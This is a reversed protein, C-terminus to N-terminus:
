SKKKDSTIHINNPIQNSNRSEIIVDIRGKNTKSKAAQNLIAKITNNTQNNSPNSSSNNANVIGFCGESGAVVSSKNKIYNGGVHIMIGKAQNPQDRFHWRYSADVPSAKVIETGNQKLKLAENGTGNPFDKRSVAQFKNDNASAPEFAINTLKIDNFSKVDEIKDVIMADRTVGFEMKFNKDETDTVVAKYVDVTTLLEKGGILGLGLVRQDTTGIKEKTITIIPYDTSIEPEDGLPDSKLYPNNAMSTYPSTSEQDNELKPDIELWRGIQPDLSRFFADYTNLDFDTNLEIFNYKKKNELAGFSKSSIGYIM